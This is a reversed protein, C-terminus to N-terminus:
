SEKGGKLNKSVVSDLFRYYDTANLLYGQAYMLLNFGAFAQGGVPPYDAATPFQNWKINATLQQNESFLAYAPLSNGGTYVNQNLTLYYGLTEPSGSLGQYLENQDVLLANNIQNAVLNFGFGFQYLENDAVPYQFRVATGVTPVGYRVYVFLKLSNLLLFRRAPVVFFDFTADKISTSVPNLPDPHRDKVFPIASNSIFNSMFTNTTIVEQPFQTPDERKRGENTQLFKEIDSLSPLEVLTKKEFNQQQTQPLYPKKMLSEQIL